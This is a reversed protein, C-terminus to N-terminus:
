RNHFEPIRGNVSPRYQWAWRKASMEPLTQLLSKVATTAITIALAHGPCVHRGHGFGFSRRDQRAIIFEDPDDNALPDRNASALLVLIADGTKLEADGFRLPRTVFRRTNQVPPDFRGVEAIMAEMLAPRDCLEDRLEPRHHLAILTNGILGATAEYTQSLLGVLNALIADQDIWGREAAGQRVRQIVPTESGPDGCFLNQCERMLRRAADHSSDIQRADSLPSLCAIFDGTWAAFEPLRYAPFGLLTAVVSVPLEFLWRSLGDATRLDHELRDIQAHTQRTVEDPTIRSLAEHMTLKPCRHREGENMRMLRAFVEGAPAGAIARPVPERAPRVRCDPHDLVTTVSAATSAIWLGIRSDFALGPGERLRAYYPYPDPHMGAQIPDIPESNM